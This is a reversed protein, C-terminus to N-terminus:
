VLLCFPWSLFLHPESPPSVFILLPCGVTRGMHYGSNLSFFNVLKKPRLPRNQSVQSQFIGRVNSPRLSFNNKCAILIQCELIKSARGFYHHRIFLLKLLFLNENKGMSQNVQIRVTGLVTSHKQDPFLHYTHHLNNSQVHKLWLFPQNTRNQVFCIKNWFNQVRSFFPM